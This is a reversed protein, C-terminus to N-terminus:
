RQGAVGSMSGCRAHLDEVDALLPERADGLVLDGLSRRRLPVRDVDDVRELRRAVLNAFEAAGDHEFLHRHGPTRDAAKTSGTIFVTTVIM